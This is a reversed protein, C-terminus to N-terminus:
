YEKKFLIEGIGKEQMVREIDDIEKPIFETLCEYGDETCLVDDEMVVNLEPMTIGPEVTICIGPKLPILYNGHDHCDMGLFHGTGWKFYKGYGGEEELIRMATEQLDKMTVGPRVMKICTEQAKKLINYVKKQEESFRGSVPFTRMIDATYYNVEAGADITVLEGAKMEKPPQIIDDSPWGPGSRIFAPFGISRAGKFHCVFNFLYGIQDNTMGPVTSKMCEIMAEGSIQAAKRLQKIGFEDHYMRLMDLLDSADRIEYKPSFYKIRQILELRKPPTEALNVFRPFNFYIIKKGLNNSLIRSIESPLPKWRRQSYRLLSFDTYANSLDPMLQNPPYVHEIGTKKKIEEQIGSIYLIEPYEESGPCLILTANPTELGTLFIFDRNNSDPVFYEYLNDQDRESSQIIAIGKDIMTALKKRREEFIM